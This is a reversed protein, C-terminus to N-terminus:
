RCLNICSFVYMFFSFNVFTRLIKGMYIRLLFEIVFILEAIKALISCNAFILEAFYRNKSAEIAFIFEAFMLTRLFSHGEPLSNFHKCYTATKTKCLSWEFNLNAFFHDLEKLLCHIAIKCAQLVSKSADCVSTRSLPPKHLTLSFICYTKIWHSFIKQEFVASWKDEKNHSFITNSINFSQVTIFIETQLLVM